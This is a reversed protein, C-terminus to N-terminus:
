GQFLQISDRGEAIASGAAIRIAGTPFRRRRPAQHWEKLAASIRPASGADGRQAVVNPQAVPNRGPAAPVPPESREMGPRLIGPGRARIADPTAFRKSHAADGRKGGHGRREFRSQGGQTGGWAVM